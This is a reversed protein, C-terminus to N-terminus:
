NPDRDTDSSPFNQDVMGQLDGHAHAGEVQKRATNLVMRKETDDLLSDLIVQLDKWDHDQTRIITEFVKAVREPDEGYTGAVEIWSRLDTISFPVKVTV